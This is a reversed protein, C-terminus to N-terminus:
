AGGLTRRLRALEEELARSREEAAAAKDEAQRRALVEAAAKDEAQRRAITEVAAREEAAAANEEAQRRAKEIEKRRLLPVGTVADTLRLQSAVAGDADVHDVALLLAHLRGIGRSLEPRLPAWGRRQIIELHL